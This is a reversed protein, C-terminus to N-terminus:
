GWCHETGTCPACLKIVSIVVCPHIIWLKHPIFHSSTCYRSATWPYSGWVPSCISIEKHRPQNGACHCVCRDFFYIMLFFFFDFSLHSIHLLFEKVNSIWTLCRQDIRILNSAISCLRKLFPFIFLFFSNDRRNINFRQLDYPFLPQLSTQPKIQWDEVMCPCFGM